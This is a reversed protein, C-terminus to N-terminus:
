NRDSGPPVDFGFFDLVKEIEEAPTIGLVECFGTRSLRGEAYLRAAYEAVLTRREAPVDDLPFNKLGPPEEASQWKDSIGSVVLAAEGRPVEMGEINKLYLRASEFHLGFDEILLKAAELPSHNRAARTVIKEPCLLRSAFGNARQERALGVESWFGSLTALPERRNFDVLLHCLEHALSFRRVCPNVNKGDLNLVITSGRKEDAFTLGALDRSGLHAYLVSIAPFSTSIFDRVSEIPQDGLRLYRRVQKAYRGGAAYPPDTPGPAQLNMGEIVPRKWPNEEGAKERLLVLDRAANAAAVIKSKTVDPVDRFEELSTLVRISDGRRLVVPAEGLIEAEVGYLRSLVELEFVSPAEGKDEIEILRDEAIGSLRAVSQRKYGLLKERLEKLGTFQNKSM